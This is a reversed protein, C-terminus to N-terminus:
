INIFKVFQFRAGRGERGRLSYKDCPRDFCKDCLNVTPSESNHMPFPEKKNRLDHIRNSFAGNWNVNM